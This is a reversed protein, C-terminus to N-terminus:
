RKPVDGNYDKELIDACQKIYKAKRGHFGVPNLLEDLQKENMRQITKINLSGELNHLRKMAGATVEDKTQSSLISAILAQFRQDKLSSKFDIVKHTGYKDIPAVVRERFTILKELTEIHNKGPTNRTSDTKKRKEPLNVKNKEEREEKEIQKTPGSEIFKNLKPATFNFREFPNM